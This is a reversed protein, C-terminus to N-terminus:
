FIHAFNQLEEDREKSVKLVCVVLQHEGIMLAM